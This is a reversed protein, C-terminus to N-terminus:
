HCSLSVSRPQCGLRKARSPLFSSLHPGQLDEPWPSRAGGPGESGMQQGALQGWM